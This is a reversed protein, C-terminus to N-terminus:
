RRKSRNYGRVVRVTFGKRETFREALKTARKEAGARTQYARGGGTKGTGYDRRMQRDYAVRVKYEM